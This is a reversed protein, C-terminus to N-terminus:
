TRVSRDQRYLAHVRLQFERIPYEISGINTKGIRLHNVAGGLTRDADLAYKLDNEVDLAGKTKDDGSLQLDKPEIKLYVQLLITMELTARPYVWEQEDNEEVEICIAPYITISERVAQLIQEDKIYSLRTSAQLQAQLADVVEAPTSM